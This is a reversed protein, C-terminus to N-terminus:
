VELQLITLSVTVTNTSGSKNVVKIYINSGPTEDDNWGIVPNSLSITEPGTTIFESIVGTNEIPPVGESRSSDNTRSEVDTYLIVRAAINTQIKLLSYTKFGTITINGSANDSLASSTGSVTIRSGLGVQSSLESYNAVRNWTNNHAYYLRGTSLVKSIMGDKVTASPLDPIDSYTSWNLNVSNGTTAVSSLSPKNLISAIGSAANWDCNIQAAPITPLNSLDNYSLVAPIFNTGNSRLVKGATIDDISVQITSGNGLAQYLEDVMNNLKTAGFRLSDGTGDNPSTGINLSQKAM